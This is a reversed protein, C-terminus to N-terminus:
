PEAKSPFGFQSARQITDQLSDHKSMLFQMLSKWLSEWQKTLTLHMPLRQPDSHHNACSGGDWSLQTWKERPREGTQRLRAATSLASPPTSLLLLLLPLSLPSCNSSAVRLSLLVFLISSTFSFFVCIATLQCTPLLKGNMNCLPQTPGHQPKSQVDARTFSFTADVPSHPFPSTERSLSPSTISIVWAM